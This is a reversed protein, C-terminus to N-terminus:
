SSPWDVFGSKPPPPSDCFKIYAALLSGLREWSALCCHAVCGRWIEDNYMLTQMYIYVWHSTFIYSVLYLGFWYWLAFILINLNCLASYIYLYYVTRYLRMDGTKVYTLGPLSNSWMIISFLRYILYIIVEFLYM